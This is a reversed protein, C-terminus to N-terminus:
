AFGWLSNETLPVVSKALNATKQIQRPYTQCCLSMAIFNLVCHQIPSTSSINIILAKTMIILWATFAGCEHILFYYAVPCSMYGSIIWNISSCDTMLSWAQGEGSETMEKTVWTKDRYNVTEMGEADHQLVTLPEWWLSVLHSLMIKLKGSTMIVLWIHKRCVSDLCQYM